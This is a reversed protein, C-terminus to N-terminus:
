EMGAHAHFFIRQKCFHIKTRPFAECDRLDFSVAAFLEEIFPAHVFEVDARGSSFIGIGNVLPRRARGALKERAALFQDDDDPM